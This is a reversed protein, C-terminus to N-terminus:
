KPIQRTLRSFSERKASSHLTPNDFSPGFLWYYQITIMFLFSPKLEGSYVQLIPLFQVTDLLVVFYDNRLSNFSFSNWEVFSASLFEHINSLSVSSTLKYIAHM